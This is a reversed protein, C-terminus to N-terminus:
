FSSCSKPGRERCLLGPFRTFVEYEFGTNPQLNGAECCSGYSFWVLHLVMWCWAMKRTMVRGANRDIKRGFKKRRGGNGAM